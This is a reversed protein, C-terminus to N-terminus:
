PSCIAQLHWAAFAFSTCTWTLCTHMHLAQHLCIPRCAACVKAKDRQLREVNNLIDKLVGRNESKASAALMNIYKQNEQELKM